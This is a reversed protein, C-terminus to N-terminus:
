VTATPTMLATSFFPSPPPLTVLDACFAWFVLHINHKAALELAVWPLASTVWSWGGTPQKLEMMLSQNITVICRLLM